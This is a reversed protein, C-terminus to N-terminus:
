SNEDKKIKEWLNDLEAATLKKLNKCSNKMLDFRKRFKEMSLFLAHAADIGLFRALNVASFLLDGVEESLNRGAKKAYQLEKLEEIIKEEIQEVTEFDFGQKRAEQQIDQSTILSALVKSISEHANKKKKIKEWNELVEGSNNAQINSFVHPHREYMKEFLNSSVKNLDFQGEEQGLIAHFLVQLLVDGLEDAMGNYDKRKITEALELPEEILEPILSEHTQERDWPCNKRLTKIMENVFYFERVEDPLKYLPLELLFDKAEKTLTKKEESTVEIISFTKNLPYGLYLLLKLLFAKLEKERGLVLVPVHVRYHFQIKYLAIRVSEKSKLSVIYTNNNDIKLYKKQGILFVVKFDKIDKIKGTSSAFIHEDIIWKQM